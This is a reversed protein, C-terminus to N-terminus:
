LELKLPIKASVPLDNHITPFDTYTFICIKPVTLSGTEFVFIFPGLSIVWTHLVSTWRTFSVSKIQLMWMITPECDYIIETTSSSPKIHYVCLCQPLDSRWMFCFYVFESFDSLITIPSSLWLQNGANIGGMHVFITDCGKRVWVYM